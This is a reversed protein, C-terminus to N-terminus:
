ERLHFLDSEEGKSVPVCRTMGSHARRAIDQLLRYLESDGGFLKAGVSRIKAYMM